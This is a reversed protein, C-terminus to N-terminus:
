AAVIHMDAEDSVRIINVRWVLQGSDAQACQISRVMDQLSSLYFLQEPVTEFIINIRLGPCTIRRTLYGEIAESTALCQEELLYDHHHISILM